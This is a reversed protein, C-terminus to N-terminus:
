IKSLYSAPTTRFPVSTFLTILPRPFMTFAAPSYAAIVVIPAWWVDGVSRAWDIVRQATIVDALPTYRWVLTLGFVVAAILAIKGWAPGHKEAGAAGPAYDDTTARSAM